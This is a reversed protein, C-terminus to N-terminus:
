MLGHNKHYGFLKEATKRALKADNFDKFNGLHIQKMNHGIRATWNNNRKCFSVGCVGSTNSKILSKNMSNGRVDTERLNCWRNDDRKHNIHDIQEKPFNGVMWLWIIRHLQCKMGDVYVYLYGPGERIGVIDGRKANGRRSIRRILAGTDPSYDFLERVRDQTLGSRDVKM